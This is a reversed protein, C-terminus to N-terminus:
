AGNGNHIDFCWRGNGIDDRTAETIVERMGRENFSRWGAFRALNWIIEGTISKEAKRRM